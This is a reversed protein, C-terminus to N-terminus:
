HVSVSLPEHGEREGWIKLEAVGFWKILNAVHPTLEGGHWAAIDSDELENKIIEAIAFRDKKELTSVGHETTHGNPMKVKAYATEGFLDDEATNVNLVTLPINGFTLPDTAFFVVDGPKIENANM